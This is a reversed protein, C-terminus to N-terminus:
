EVLRVFFGLETAANRKTVLVATQLCLYRVPSLSLTSCNDDDDDLKQNYYFSPSLSLSAQWTLFPRPLGVFASDCVGARFRKKFLLFIQNLYKFFFKCELWLFRAKMFEPVGSVCNKLFLFLKEM